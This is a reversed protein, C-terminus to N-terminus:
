CYWGNIKSYCPKVCYFNIGDLCNNDVVMKKDGYCLFSSGSGTMVVTDFGVENILRDKIEKLKPEIDFVTKELDNCFCPTKTMFSQLIKLPDKPKIMAVNTQGFVQTTDMGIDKPKAIYMSNDCQFASSDNVIEGRGTCYAQGSSFFFPVDSGIEGGWIALTKIPINCSFMRNLAYLVTAANSSGGGLGSQMPINKTISIKLSINEGTKRRFVEVARYVTNNENWSLTSKACFFSDSKAIKINLIDGLTIAQYLSAVEHFDDQRKKIVRFFLNVKAPSFITIEDNCCRKTM